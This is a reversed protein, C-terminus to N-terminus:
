NQCKKIEMITQKNIVIPQVEGIFGDAGAQYFIGDDLCACSLARVGKKSKASMFAGTDLNTQGLYTLPFPVITHGSFVHSLNENFIDQVRDTRLHKVVTEIERRSSKGFFEGFVYRGWLMYSAGMRKMESLRKVFQPDELLADTIEVHPLEAHIVHYKKGNKHNITILFPLKSIEGVLDIIEAEEDNPIIECSKNPSHHAVLASLGWTGGNRLWNHAADEDSFSEGMMDEHNSLTAFFWPERLLRLCELSQPGRDVLDGVSFMRDKETDFKIGELLSLFIEFSGHLDGVIYDKGILNPQFTKLESM